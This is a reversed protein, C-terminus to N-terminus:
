IYAMITLLNFSIWSVRLNDISVSDFLSLAHWRREWVGQMVTFGFVKTYLFFFFLSDPYIHTFIFIPYLYGLPLALPNLLRKNWVAHTGQIRYFRFGMDLTSYLSFPYPYHRFTLPKGIIVAIQTSYDM